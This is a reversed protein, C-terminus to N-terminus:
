IMQTVDQRPLDYQHRWDPEADTVFERFNRWAGHSYPNSGGPGARLYSYRARNMGENTTVGQCIQYIHSVLLGTMWWSFLAHVMLLWSIAPTVDWMDRLEGFFAERGNMVSQYCMWGFSIHISSMALLLMVFLRYNEVGVCNNLWGCHHDM